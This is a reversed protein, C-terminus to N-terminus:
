YPAPEGQNNFEILKQQIYDQSTNYLDDILITKNKKSNEWGNKYDVMNVLRHFRCKKLRKVKVKNNIAIDGQVADHRVFIDNNNFHSNTFTNLYTYLYEGFYKQAATRTTTLSIDGTRFINFGDRKWKQTPYFFMDTRDVNKWNSEIYKQYQCGTTICELNNLNDFDLYNLFKSKLYEEESKYCLKNKYVFDTRGKIVVDYKCNAREEHSRLLNYAKNLSLHQGWKYRKLIPPKSYEKYKSKTLFILISEINKIFNDLVDFDEILYKTPKLIDLSKAIEEEFNVYEGESKKSFSVDRWFHCFFDFNNEKYCFEEKLFKCTLNVFRPQGSLLVAIKM